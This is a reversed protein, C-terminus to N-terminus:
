GICTVFINYTAEEMSANAPFLVSTVTEPRKLICPFNRSRLERFKKTPVHILLIVQSM